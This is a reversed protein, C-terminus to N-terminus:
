NLLRRSWKALHKFETNSHTSYGIAKPEPRPKVRSERLSLILKVEGAGNLVKGKVEGL